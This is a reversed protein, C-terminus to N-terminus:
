GKKEKPKTRPSSPGSSPSDQGPPGAERPCQIHQFPLETQGWRWSCSFGWSWCEQWTTQLPVTSASNIYKEMLANANLCLVSAQTSEQWGGCRSQMFESQIKHTLVQRFILQKVRWQVDSYHVTSSKAAVSQNARMSDGSQPLEDVPSSVLLGVVPGSCTDFLQFTSYMNAGYLKTQCNTIIIKKRESSIITTLM